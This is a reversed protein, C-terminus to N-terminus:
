YLADSNHSEQISEVFIGIFVHFVARLLLIHVKFGLGFNETGGVPGFCARIKYETGYFIAMRPVKARRAGVAVVACSADDM